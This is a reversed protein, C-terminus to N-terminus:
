QEHTAVHGTTPASETPTSSMALARFALSETVPLEREGIQNQKAWEVAEHTGFFFEETGHSTFFKGLSLQKIVKATPNAFLLQVPGGRRGGAKLEDVFDHLLHIASTDVYPVASLDVIVSHIRLPPTSNAAVAEEIKDKNAVIQDRIFQRIQAFNAFMIPADVRVVLIGPEPIANVYLETSRYVRSNEIRGLTVVHPFSAQFVILAMSLGVSLGIGIEVGWVMTGIFAVTWVAFDLLNSSSLFYWERFDLLPLVGIIVVAGQINQPMNSLFPTLVL